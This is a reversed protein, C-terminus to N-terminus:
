KVAAVLSVTKSFDFDDWEARTQFLKAVAEGAFSGKCSRARNAHSRRRPEPARSNVEIGTIMARWSSCARCAPLTEIESIAWDHM